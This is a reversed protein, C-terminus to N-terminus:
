ALRSPGTLECSRTPGSTASSHWRSPFRKRHIEAARPVRLQLLRSLRDMEPRPFRRRIAARGPRAVRSRRSALHVHHVYSGGSIFAGLDSTEEFFMHYFDGMMGIGPSNCDRAISAADAVQRLFFAEKRNLPEMLLRTGAKQAHEGLAPLTDVLM